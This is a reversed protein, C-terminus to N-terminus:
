SAGTFAPSINMRCMEWWKLIDACNITITHEGGSYADNVETTLGWFIPYYQPVGEVLFYGKAYIEVEMMTTIVPVGEFYLDDISHRPVALSINASGPVSEIGLDVSIQTIYKNLDFKRRCSPCGIVDSEGNLYVIADPAHVVTPRMNPTFTGQFPGRPM